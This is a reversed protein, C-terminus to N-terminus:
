SGNKITSVEDCTFAVYNIGVLVRSIANRVEYYM